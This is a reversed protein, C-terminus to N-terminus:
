LPRPPDLAMYQDILAIANGAGNCVYACMGEGRLRLIWAVQEETPKGSDTKLEIYLSHYRGRAAPILLDPFGKRVGAAKLRAAESKRRAGGNPIHVCPYGKLDCYDIVACQEDYESMSWDHAM